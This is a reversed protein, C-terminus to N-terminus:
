NFIKYPSYTYYKPYSDLRAHLWYIGLGSTNIWLPHNDLRKEIEAGLVHFFDDCQEPPAERLFKTLHTYVNNPAKPRPAILWADSGLNAFTAITENNTITEFYQSFASANPAVSVLSPCDVVVCEYPLKTTLQTIPPSEWFVAEYPMDSLLSIYFQRFESNTKWNEVVEAFTLPQNNYHIFTKCFHNTDSFELRPKWM